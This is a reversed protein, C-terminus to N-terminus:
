ADARRNASVAKDVTCGADEALLAGLQLVCVVEDITRERIDARYHAAAELALACTTFLSGLNAVEYVPDTHRLSGPLNHVRTETAADTTATTDTNINM